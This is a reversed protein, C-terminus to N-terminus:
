DIHTEIVNDRRKFLEKLAITIVRVKPIKYKKATREVSRYLKPDMLMSFSTKERSM